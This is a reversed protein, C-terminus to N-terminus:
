ENLRLKLNASFTNGETDYDLEYRGLYLLDLREKFKSKGLGGKSKVQTISFSNRVSYIIQDPPIVELKIRIFAEDSDVNGHKFANEIFHATILPAIKMQRYFDANDAEGLEVKLVVTPRLRLRYLGLYERAFKVERDLKVFNQQSDYLMYDFVGSLSEVSQFTSRAFHQITNLTNRFSHPNLVFRLNELKRQYLEEELEYNKRSLNDVENRTKHLENRTKQLSREIQSKESRAVLFLIIFLILLLFLIISTDM